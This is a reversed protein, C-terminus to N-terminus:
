KSLFGSIESAWIGGIQMPDWQQPSMDLFRQVRIYSHFSCSFMRFSLSWLSGGAIRFGKGQFGFGELGLGELVHSSYGM